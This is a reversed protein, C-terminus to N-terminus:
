SGHSFFANVQEIIYDQTEIEMETHIPLSIVDKCLLESVPFDGAKYGYLLYAQQLHVPIPYYVMSPVGREQLFAKLADRRGDAVKCTYQNFVHTSYTVRAPISLGNLNLFHSDYRRAIAQRAEVYEKLYKIKVNLVAAQITDLRSNVGISEHHYKQRQGHNAIMHVRQALAEDNTFLAGGDGFCGLNKSPFFSTTGITGVTGAFQRTGDSYIYEAGMAQATDEIVALGHKEAIANIAEMNSCQGFLHVPVVAVTRDTIKSELQEYDLEFTDPRVDIFKPILGLLAIVEVTAIYTFAPVIVEDGPKFSLGMMAIQLADTGNGCTVAYKVQNFSKLSEIFAKVQPGNIYATEEVAALLAQDIEDKIRLYQTKLDVMQIQQNM